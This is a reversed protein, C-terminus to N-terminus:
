PVGVKNPALDSNSEGSGSADSQVAEDASRSV